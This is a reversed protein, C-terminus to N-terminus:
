EYFCLKGLTLGNKNDKNKNNKGEKKQLPKGWKKHYKKLMERNYFNNSHDFLM